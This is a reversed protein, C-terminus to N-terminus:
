YVRPTRRKKLNIAIAIAGISLAVVVGIVIGVIAGTTIGAHPAPYVIEGEVYTYPAGTGNPSVVVKVPDVIGNEARREVANQSVFSIELENNLSLEDYSLTLANNEVRSSLDKGNLTIGHLVYGDDPSVTYTYTGGQEVTQIKGDEKTLKGGKGDISAYITKATAKEAPVVAVMYPSFSTVTAVIGFKTIVCPVEEIRYEDGDIHKRHYLKFAVGEDDPGYGEPFGLAIKVYSGDPVTAIKGCIQLKIDYTQSTIVDKPAIDLSADDYLEDLMANKTQANVNDVVLMMQSREANSFTSNGQGDTFNMVSLDTNDILTPQACCDIWLRGDGFVNPCATILRSFVFYAHNPTKNSTTRVLQGDLQKDVIKASGVNSFTFVYGERNHEYMLSPKFKFELTNFIGNEDAVLRLFNGDEFPVFSAYKKINASSASLSVSIPQTDDLVRLPEDYVLHVLIAKDDAMVNSNASERMSDNIIVDTGIIPSSKSSLVYPAPTYTGYAANEFEQSIFVAHSSVNQESQYINGLTWFPSNPKEDPAVDTLVAYQTCKVNSTVVSKTIGPQNEIGSGDMPAFAYIDTWPTWALVGNNMYYSRFVLRLKDETYLDNANKGNYNVYENVFYTDGKSYTIKYSFGGLSTEYDMKNPDTARAYDLMSLAPYSLSYNSSSIVGDAIHDRSFATADLATYKNKNHNLSNWTTDFAFWANNQGNAQALRKGDVNGSKQATQLLVYNWSHGVNGETDSGNADKGKSFGSVVVCPIGLKDMVAKYGFTFGSCVAKKAVLAGYATHSLPSTSLQGNLYDNYTGFDYAVDTAILENVSKALAYDRSVESDASDAIETARDAIDNVANEFASIAGNVADESSFANDRYVNAEKGSDVYATYNGNTRGASVTMKYLDVYFLEPHDMLFCDRAAGFARPITLDGDEVWSAIQASDLVDNLNRSVTGKRFDGNANIEDLVQYFQKALTYNESEGNAGLTTLNDYYYGHTTADTAFASQVDTSLVHTLGFVFTCVYTAILAFLLIHKKASTM